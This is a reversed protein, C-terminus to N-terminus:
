NQISLNDHTHTLRNNHKIREHDEVAEALILALIKQAFDTSLGNEEALTKMRTMQEAERQPDIAPLHHRAKLHGINRTQQARQALLHILETDIVDIKQRLVILEQPLPPQANTM